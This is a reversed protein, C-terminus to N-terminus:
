IHILSLAKGTGFSVLRNMGALIYRLADCRALVYRLDGCSAQWLVGRM